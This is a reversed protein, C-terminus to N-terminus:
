LFFLGVMGLAGAIGSGFVASPYAAANSSQSPPASNTPSLTTPSLTPSKVTSTSNGVGTPKGSITGATESPASEATTTPEAATTQAPADVPYMQPLITKVDAPLAQYWEPTQGAALSSAIESQFAPPNTAALQIASPPLATLLVQIVSQSVDEPVGGQARVGMALAAAFALAKFQM